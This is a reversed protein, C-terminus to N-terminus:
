HLTYVSVGDCWDTTKIEKRTDMSSNVYETATNLKANTEWSFKPLTARTPIMEM